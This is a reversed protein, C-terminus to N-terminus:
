RAAASPGSAAPRGLRAPPRHRVRARGPRPQADAPTAPSAHGAPTAAPAPWGAPRAAPGAGAAAPPTTSPELASVAGSVSCDQWPGRTGYNNAHPLRLIGSRGGTDVVRLVHLDGAVKRHGQGGENASGPRTSPATSSDTPPPDLREGSCAATSYRRSAVTRSTSSQQSCTRFAARRTASTSNRLHGDTATRAVLREGSSM